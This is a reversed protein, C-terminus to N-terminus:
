GRLVMSASFAFPGSTPQATYSEWSVVSSERLLNWFSDYLIGPLAEPICCCHTLGRVDVNRCADVVDSLLSRAFLRSIMM